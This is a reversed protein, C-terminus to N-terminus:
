VHARGIQRRVTRRGAPRADPGKGLAPGLAAREASDHRLLCRDYRDASEGRRGGSRRGDEMARYRGADQGWAATRALQRRDSNAGLSRALWAAPRIRDIGLAAIQRRKEAVPSGPDARFLTTYPFLTDTRTSSPPRRTM